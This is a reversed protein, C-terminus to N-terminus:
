TRLSLRAQVEVRLRWRLTSPSQSKLGLGDAAEIRHHTQFAGYADHVTAAVSGPANRLAEGSLQWAGSWSVM